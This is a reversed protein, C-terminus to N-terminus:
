MSFLFDDNSTDMYRELYMDLANVINSFLKPDVDDLNVIALLKTKDYSMVLLRNKEKDHKVGVQRNVKESSVMNQLDNAMENIETNETVEAEEM